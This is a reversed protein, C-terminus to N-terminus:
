RTLQYVCINDFCAHEGERNVIRVRINQGKFQSLNYSYQSYDNSTAVVYDDHGIAPLILDNIYVVIQPDKDQETERLFKRFSIILYANDETVSVYNSVSSETGNNEICLGEKHLEVTGQKTWTNYIDSATWIQYNTNGKSVASMSISKISAEGDTENMIEITSVTDIYASLDYVYETYEASTLTAFLEGDHNSVSNDNVFVLIRPMVNNTNSKMMIKLYKSNSDIHIRNSIQAGSGNDSFVVSGETASVNGKLQWDTAIDQAGWSSMASVYDNNKSISISNIYLGESGNASLSENEIFLVVTKDSYESLGFVLRTETLGTLKYYGKDNKRLDENIIEPYGTTENGGETVVARVRILTELDGIINTNIILYKDDNNLEFKNFMVANPSVDNIDLDAGSLEICPMGTKGATIWKATDYEGSVATQWECTDTFFDFERLECTKMEKYNYDSNNDNGDTKNCATVTISVFILAIFLVTKFIKRM